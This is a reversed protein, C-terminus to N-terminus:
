GGGARGLERIADFGDVMQEVDGSKEVPLINQMDVTPRGAAQLLAWDVAQHACLVVVCDYGTISEPTLEVSSRRGTPLDVVSVLPDHFEVDLGLRDLQEIVALAPSERTDAVNAKYAVGVLLVKAREPLLQLDAIRDMIRRVVAAPRHRNALIASDLVPMRQAQGAAFASLYGADVPICHGGAGPGPDFGFYGFPKTRCAEGVEWPDLELATCLAEIENAFSVNVLRWSNEYLKAMEAARPSSMSRVEDVITRYFDAVAKLCADTCGSVLKPITRMPWADNGPNIREPSFGVFLDVGPQRGAALFAPLFIDETTGPYSTSELVVTANPRVVSAIADAAAAVNSTDPGGAPDLPTPVAVIWVDTEPATAVSTHLEFRGDAFAARIRAWEDHRDSAPSRGLEAVRGEDNDVAAVRHGADLAALCIEAGVYGLGVVTVAIAEDTPVAM